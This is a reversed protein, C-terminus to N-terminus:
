GDRREIINESVYPQHVVKIGRRENKREPLKSLQMPEPFFEPRGSRCDAPCSLHLPCFLVPGPDREYYGPVPLINM